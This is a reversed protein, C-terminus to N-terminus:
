QARALVEHCLNAISIYNEASLEEPRVQPEVFAGEFVDAWHHVEAL